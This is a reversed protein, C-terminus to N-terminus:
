AVQQGAALPNSAPNPNQAAGQGIQLQVTGSALVAYNTGNVPQIHGNIALISPTGGGPPTVLLALNDLTSTSGTTNQITVTGPTANCNVGVIQFDTAAANVHLVVGGILLTTAVLFALGFLRKMAARVGVAM